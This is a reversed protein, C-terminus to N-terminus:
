RSLFYRPIVSSNLVTFHMSFLSPKNESQFEDLIGHDLINSAGCSGSSSGMLDLIKSANVTFLLIM